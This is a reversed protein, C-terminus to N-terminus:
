RFDVYEMIVCLADEYSHCNTVRKYMENITDKSIGYKKMANAAAGMVYFINGDTQNAILTPKDSTKREYYDDDDNDEDYEFDSKKTFKKDCMDIAEMDVLNPNNDIFDCVKGDLEDIFREYTEEDNNGWNKNILQSIELNTYTKIYRAAYNCTENGYGVGIHDGDNFWRYNIKMTARVLEGALHKCKGNAPVWKGFLDELRQQNETLM